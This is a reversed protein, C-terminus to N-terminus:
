KTGVQHRSKPRMPKAPTKALGLLIDSQHGSKTSVPATQTAVQPTVQQAVQPPMTFKTRLSATKGIFISGGLANAFGCIWKL